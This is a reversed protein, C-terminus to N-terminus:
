HLIVSGTFDGIVLVSVHIIDFSNKGTFHVPLSIVFVARLEVIGRKFYTHLVQTFNQSFM